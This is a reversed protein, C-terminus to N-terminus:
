QSGNNLVKYKNLALTMLKDHELDDGDDYADQKTKIYHVFERDAAALYGKFLNAMIDDCSERRATLGMYNLKVYDNFKEIDSNVTSMYIDLSSLNTRYQTAMAQTDIVSKHMLLKWLLAACPISGIHYKNCEEIIKLQGEKILSAQLCHYMQMNHQAQCTNGNIYACGAMICEKTLWGYKTIINRAVNNADNCSLVNAQALTWGM